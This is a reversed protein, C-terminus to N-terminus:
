EYSVKLTPIGLSKYMEICEQCNEVALIIDEGTMLAVHAMEKKIKWDPWTNGCPRMILEAFGLGHGDLWTRTTNFVEFSRATYVAIKYGQAYLAQAMKFMEVVPAVSGIANNFAAYNPPTEEIFFRTEGDRALVGDLDFIITQIRKM